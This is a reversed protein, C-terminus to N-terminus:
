EVKFARSLIDDTDNKELILARLERTKLSNLIELNDLIISLETKLSMSNLVLAQRFELVKLPRTNLVQKLIEKNKRILYTEVEDKLRKQTIKENFVEHMSFSLAERAENNQLFKKLLETAIKEKQEKLSEKSLNEFDKKFTENLGEKALANLDLNNLRENLSEKTNQLNTELENKFNELVESKENLKENLNENLIHEASKLISEKNENFFANLDINQRVENLLETKNTEFYELIEAKEQAKLEEKFETKFTEIKQSNTENLTQELNAKLKNFNTELSAKINQDNLKEKTDNLLQELENLKENLENINQAEYNM